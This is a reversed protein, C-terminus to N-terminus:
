GCPPSNVHVNDLGRVLLKAVLSKRQGRFRLNGLELFSDVDDKRVVIPTEQELEVASHEILRLDHRDTYVTGPGQESIKTPDIGCV